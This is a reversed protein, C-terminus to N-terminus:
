FYVILKKESIGSVVPVPGCTTVSNPFRLGISLLFCMLETHFAFHQVSM